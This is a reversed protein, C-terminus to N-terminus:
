RLVKLNSLPNIRIIKDTFHIPFEWNQRYFFCTKGCRPSSHTPLTVPDILSLLHKAPDEFVCLQAHTNAFQVAPQYAHVLRKAPHHSIGFRFQEVSGPHFQGV